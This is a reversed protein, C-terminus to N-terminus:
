PNILSEIHARPIRRRRLGPLTPMTGAAIRRLVTKESVGMKAAAEEVTYFECDKSVPEAPLHKALEKAFRPSNRALLILEKEDLQISIM